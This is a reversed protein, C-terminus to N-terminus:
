YTRRTRIKCGDGPLIELVADSLIELTGHVIYTKESEWTEDASLLYDRLVVESDAGAGGNVSVPDNCGCFVFLALVLFYYRFSLFQM